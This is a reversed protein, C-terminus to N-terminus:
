LLSGNRNASCTDISVEVYLLAFTKGVTSLSLECPATEEIFWGTTMIEEDAEGAFALREDDHEDDPDYGDGDDGCDGFSRRCFGMRGECQRRSPDSCLLFLNSLNSQVMRQKSWRWYCEVDSILIDVMRGKGLGSMEKGISFGFLL